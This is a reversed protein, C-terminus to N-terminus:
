RKKGYLPQLSNSHFIIPVYSKLELLTNARHSFVKVPTRTYKEKYSVNFLLKILNKEKNYVHMKNHHKARYLM